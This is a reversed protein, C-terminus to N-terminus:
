NIRKYVVSRYQIKRSDVFYIVIILNARNIIQSQNCSQLKRKCPSLNWVHRYFQLTLQLWKSHYFVDHRHRTHFIVLLREHAYNLILGPPFIIPLSRLILQLFKFSFRQCGQREFQWRHETSLRRNGSAKKILCVTRVSVLSLRKM